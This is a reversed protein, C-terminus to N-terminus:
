RQLYMDYAVPQIVLILLFLSLGLLVQNSPTGQTGLAQRLFHLVITIRLFPSVSMVVGPLLTPLTLGVAIQIPLIINRPGTPPATAAAAMPAAWLSIAIAATLLRNM